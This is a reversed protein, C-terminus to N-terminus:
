LLIIKIKINSVIVSEQLAIHSILEKDFNIGHDNISLTNLFINETSRSDCFTSFFFSFFLFFLFFFLHWSPSDFGCTGSRFKSISADMKLSRDSNPRQRQVARFTCAWKCGRACAFTGTEVWSREKTQSKRLQAASITVDANFYQMSWVWWFGDLGVLVWWIGMLVWWFGDFGVLVWWIGMWVWWFGDLGMSVWWSGDFGM